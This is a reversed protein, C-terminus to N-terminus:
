DGQPPVDRGTGSDAPARRKDGAPNGSNGHAMGDTERREWIASDAFPEALIRRLLGGHDAADQDAAAAVAEHLLCCGRPPNLCSLCANYLGEYYLSGCMQSLASFYGELYVGFIAPISGGAWGRRLRGALPLRRAAGAKGKDGAKGACGVGNMNWARAYLIFPKALLVAAEETEETEEGGGQAQWLGFVRAAAERYPMGEAEGPPIGLITALKEGAWGASAFYDGLPTEAWSRIASAIFEPHAPIGEKLQRLQQELPIRQIRM